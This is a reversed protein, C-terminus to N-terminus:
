PAPRGALFDLPRAQLVHEHLKPPCDPPVTVPYQRVTEAVALTSLGYLVSGM